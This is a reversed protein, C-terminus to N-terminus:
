DKENIKSYIEATVWVAGLTLLVSATAVFLPHEYIEPKVEELQLAHNENTVRLTEEWKENDAAHKEKELELDNAGEKKAARVGADIQKKIEEPDAKVQLYAQQTFTQLIGDIPAKEGARMRIFCRSPDGPHCRMASTVGPLKTKDWVVPKNQARAIEPLSACSIILLLRLIM